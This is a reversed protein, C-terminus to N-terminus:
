PSTALQQPSVDTKAGLFEMRRTLWMVVSLAAFLALSGGVLSFDEEQLLIYAVAFQVALVTAVAGSSGWTRLAAKAYLGIMGIVASSAIVYAAEFGIHESFALVLLFFMVNALGILTYQLMHLRAGKRLELMFFSGFTILLFLFGYKFVRETRQYIDVSDFLRVALATQVRVHRPEDSTGLVSDPVGGGISVVDVGRRVVSDRWRATFGAPNISHTEPLQDGFFSPSNWNASVSLDAKGAVPLVGFAGVGAVDVELAFPIGTNIGAETIAASAAAVAPMKTSGFGSQMLPSAAKGAVSITPLARLMRASHMPWIVRAGAWDIKVTSQNETRLTAESVNGSFRGSLKVNGSYTNATFIGRRRPEVRLDSSADLTDPVTQWWGSRVTRSVTKKVTKYRPANEDKTAEQDLVREDVLETITERFPVALFPTLIVPSEVGWSSAIDEVVSLSRLKRERGLDEVMGLPIFLMMVVFGLLTAKLGNGRLLQAIYGPASSKLTRSTSNNSASSSETTNSPTAFPNQDM